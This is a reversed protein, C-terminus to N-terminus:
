GNIIQEDETSNQVLLDGLTSAFAENMFVINTSTLADNSLLNSNNQLMHEMALLYKQFTFYICFASYIVQAMITNNGLRNMMNGILGNMLVNNFQDMKRAFDNGSTSEPM